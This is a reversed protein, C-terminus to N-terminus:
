LRAMFGHCLPQFLEKSHTKQLAKGSIVVASPGSSTVTRGGAPAPAPTPTSTPHVPAAPKRKCYLHRCICIFLTLVLVGAFSGLIIALM